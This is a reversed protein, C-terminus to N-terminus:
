LSGSVLTRSFLSLHTSSNEPWPASQGCTQRRAQGQGRRPAQRRTQRGAQRGTQGDTQKDTQRDTQRDIRGDTMLTARCSWLMGLILSPLASSPSCVDPSRRRTRINELPITGHRVVTAVKPPCHVPRREQDARRRADMGSGTRRNPKTRSAELEVMILSPTGAHRKLTPRDNHLGLPSLRM